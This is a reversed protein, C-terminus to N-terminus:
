SLCLWRKLVAEVKELTDADCVSLRRILQVDPVTGISQADFVGPAFRAAEHPVEYETGRTSTTRAVYSVLAREADKYRVSLILVPRVKQIMGLDILWIEGRMATLRAM